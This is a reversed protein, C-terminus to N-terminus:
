FTSIVGSLQATGTHKDFEIENCKYRKIVREGFLYLNNESNEVGEGCEVGINYKKIQTALFYLEAKDLYFCRGLSM